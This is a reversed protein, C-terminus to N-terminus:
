RAGAKRLSGSTISSARDLSGEMHTLRTESSSQSSRAKASFAITTAGPTKRLKARRNRSSRDVGRDEALVRRRRSGLVTRRACQLVRGVSDQRYRLVNGVAADPSAVRHLPAGLRELAKRFEHEARRPPLEPPECQAAAERPPQVKELLNLLLEPPSLLKEQLNEARGDELLTTLDGGEHGLGQKSPPGDRDGNHVVAAVEQLHKGLGRTLVRLDHPPGNGLRQAGDLV